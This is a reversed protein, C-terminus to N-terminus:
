GWRRRDRPGRFGPGIGHPNEVAGQVCAPAAAGGWAEARM